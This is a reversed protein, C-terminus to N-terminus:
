KLSKIIVDLPLDVAKKYKKDKISYLSIRFIYRGEAVFTMGSIKIQVRIRKIGKKMEFKQVFKQVFKKQPNIFDISLKGIETLNFNDRIIFSVIDYNLDIKISKSKIDEKKSVVTIEELSDFLSISNTNQDVVSRQCLVSWVHKM